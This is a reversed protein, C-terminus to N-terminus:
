LPIILSKYSRENFAYHVSQAKMLSVCNPPDRSYSKMEGRPNKKPWGVCLAEEIGEQSLFSINSIIM